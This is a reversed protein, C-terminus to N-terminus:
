ATSPVPDLNMIIIVNVTVVYDLSKFLLEPKQSYLHSDERKIQFFLRKKIDPFIEFRLLTAIYNGHAGM